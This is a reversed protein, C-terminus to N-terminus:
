EQCESGQMWPPMEQSDLTAFRHWDIRLHNDRFMNASKQTCKNCNQQHLTLRNKAANSESLAQQRVCESFRSPEGFLQSYPAVQAWRRVSLEYATAISTKRPLEHTSAGAM